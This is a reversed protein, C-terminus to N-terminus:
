KCASEITLRLKGILKSNVHALTTSISGTKGRAVEAELIQITKVDCLVRAAELNAKLDPTKGKRRAVFEVHTCGRTALYNYGRAQNLIPFLDQWGRGPIPTALQPRAETKLANWAEADLGQLDRGVAVFFPRKAPNTLKDDCAHFYANPSALGISHAVLELVRKPNDAIPQDLSRVM